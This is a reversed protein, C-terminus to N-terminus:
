SGGIQGSGAPDLALIGSGSGPVFHVELEVWTGVPAGNRTAPNFRLERAARMAAYNLSQYGCGERMQIADPVGLSDVWFQLKISGGVGARQLALPYFSAILKEARERERLAPFTVTVEPLIPPGANDFASGDAGSGESHVAPLSTETQGRLGSSPALPAETPSSGQLQAQEKPTIVQVVRSVVGLVKARAEPVAVATIMIGALCAAMLVRVWPQTGPTVWASRGQWAGLLERRLEPGFSPREEIRIGSLERDLAQLEPPMSARFDKDNRERPDMM